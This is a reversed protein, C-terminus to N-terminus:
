AFAPVLRKASRREACRCVTVDKMESSIIETEYHYSFINEVLTLCLHYSKENGNLKDTLKANMQLHTNGSEAGEFMQVDEFSLKQSLCANMSQTLFEEDSIVDGSLSLNKNQTLFEKVWAYWTFIGNEWAQLAERVTASLDAKPPVNLFLNNNFM